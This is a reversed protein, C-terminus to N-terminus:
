LLLSTGRFMERFGMEWFYRAGYGSVYERLLSQVDVRKSPPGLSLFFWIQFKIPIMCIQIILWMIDSLTLMIVGSVWIRANTMAKRAYSFPIMSPDLFSLGLINM